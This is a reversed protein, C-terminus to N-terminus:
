HGARLALLLRCDFIAAMEELLVLPLGEGLDHDLEDGVIGLRPFTQAPGQLARRHALRPRDLRM